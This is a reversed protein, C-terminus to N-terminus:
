FLLLTSSESSDLVRENNPIKEGRKLPKKNKSQLHAVIITATLRSLWHFFIVNGYQYYQLISIEFSVMLRNFASVFVGSDRATLRSAM